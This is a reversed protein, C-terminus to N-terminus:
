DSFRYKVLTWLAIPGDHFANLKKGEDSSRPNTSIPVETITFGKKLLRATIEPEFDFSKSRLHFDTVASKPFLKYGTEM